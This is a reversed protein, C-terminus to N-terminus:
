PDRRASVNDPLPVFSPINHKELEGICVDGAQVGIEFGRLSAAKHIGRISGPACIAVPLSAYPKTFGDLALREPTHFVAGIVDFEASLRRKQADAWTTAVLRAPVGTKQERASEVQAADHTNM